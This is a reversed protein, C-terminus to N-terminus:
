NCPTLRFTEKPWTRDYKSLDLELCQVENYVKLFVIIRDSRIMIEKESEFFDLYYDVCEGSSIRQKVVNLVESSDKWPKEMTAYYEKETLIKLYMTDNKLEKASRIRYSKAESLYSYPRYISISDHLTNCLRFKTLYKNEKLSFRQIQKCSFLIGSILVLVLFVRSKLIGM